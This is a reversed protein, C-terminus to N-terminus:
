WSSSRRAQLAALDDREAADADVRDIDLRRGGLADRDGVAGVGKDLFDGVMRHPQDERRM